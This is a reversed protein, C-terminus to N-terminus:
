SYIYVCMYGERQLREGCEGDVGSTMASCWASNGRSYLMKGGGTYKVDPLTYVDSSSESNTGHEGEWQWGRRTWLDM